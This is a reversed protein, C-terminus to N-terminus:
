MIMIPNEVKQLFSVSPIFVLNIQPFSCNGQLDLQSAGKALLGDMSSEILRHGVLSFLWFLLSPFLQWCLFTSCM